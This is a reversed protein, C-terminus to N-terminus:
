VLELDDHLFIAYSRTSHREFMEQLPSLPGPAAQPSALLLLLDWRGGRLGRSSSALERLTVLLPSSNLQQSYILGYGRSCWFM